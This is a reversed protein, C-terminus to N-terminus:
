FLVIYFSMFTYCYAGRYGCWGKPVIVLIVPAGKRNDRESREFSLGMKFTTNTM